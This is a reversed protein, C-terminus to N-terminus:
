YTLAEDMDRLWYTATLSSDYYMGKAPLTPLASPGGNSNPTRGQFGVELKRGTTGGDGSGDAASLTVGSYGSEGPALTTVAQPKSDEIPRPAWQMEDFRLVPYYTLDCYKSGTNKVTILMHNVPRRVPQATVTTNTGNCSVRNAPDAPDTPKAAGSNGGNTKGTTGSQTGKTDTSTQQPATAATTSSTVRPKAAGEDQTGTGDECATLALAALLAVPLAHYKRM